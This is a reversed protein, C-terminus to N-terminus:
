INVQKNKSIKGMGHDKLAKEKKELNVDLM